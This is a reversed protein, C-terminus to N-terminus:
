GRNAQAKKFDQEWEDTKAILKLMARIDNGDYNNKKIKIIMEIQHTRLNQWIESKALENRRLKIDFEKEKDM